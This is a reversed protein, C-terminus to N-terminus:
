PALVVQERLQHMARAFQVGLDIFGATDYHAPDSYAYEDTSTVIAAAPDAEVFSQQAKRVIEGFDWVHGDADRGSDSIRGIIVPLDDQRLAARFLDILRELNDAYAVASAEQTADSEGQMWVIGAPILRDDKGDGDIDRVATARRLAALFHDYQNYVPKGRVSDDLFDPDWCGYRGAAEPAISTGGRSCKLLAIPENPRLRRLQEAFSLEVGFRDSYRNTNGDSTFGRGHGPRLEEWIGQGGLEEGDGPMNGHYIWVGKQVRNLEPPLEEIKGYGDMNSQGALLYLQFDTAFAAGSVGGLALVIGCVAARVGM